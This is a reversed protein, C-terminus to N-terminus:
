KVYLGADGGLVGNADIWSDLVCGATPDILKDIISKGLPGSLNPFLAGDRRLPTANPVNMPVNSSGNAVGNPLVIRDLNFFARVPDFTTSPAKGDCGYRNANTDLPNVACGNEDFLFLGSGLGSVMHVWIPSNLQNGPNQGIHEKLLNFDLKDFENNAMADKFATYQTGFDAMGKETLHCAVCYRPGENTSTVKGRISHAMMVNHGLSRFQASPSNGQGNRDTFAFVKSRKDDIDTYRFFMKTNSSMTEIKNDPGVGLQFPVPSQYVFEAFRQRFVIREGTINSYNAGTDYEGELHCGMCTNTWSSHCSACSMSDGHSFGTSACKTQKPGTGTADLGDDRGMAYSALASYLAEQTFPNKAGSNVVTDKTQRVFHRKGTLRSTLYLHGDAGKAVHKLVIGKADVALEATNGAYDTGSQTVAYTDASGHCSECKIAVGQHMRSKIDNGTKTVDGGHLDFSGHCDICGLGAEHHVDAPTDDRGDGDYDEFSLYQNANRGNFTRNGVEPDFLRTDDATNTFTVPNAPYQVRRRVDQNQDLRIGWYQMVTRNSGQHCGACAMDSIGELGHGNSLTKKVSVIRHAFVHSREGPRIADPNEPEDKPVNPDRSRSRGDPSYPMHCATCGSSRFDGFRNNAGASGLHCDGCTFAVQERYLQALKSGTVIARNADVDAPLADASYAPNKFLKDPAEIGHQSMVPFELLRSVSGVKTLDQVYDPDSVARFGLDAATKEYLNKTEAVEGEVGVAHLAGALIGTETALMSGNVCEAHGQHCEGCGKSRTVVRLDGPNLFQLYELATHTQGNVTYDAFKDIGALTLKNFFALRNTAQRQRDGIEPPPPVHSSDKDFGKSDGGHCRTCSLNDAGPFPHPNEIGPGTYDSHQTGNHCLMCSSETITLERGAQDCSITIAPLLLVITLQVFRRARDGTRLM